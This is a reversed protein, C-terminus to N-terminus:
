KKEQKCALCPFVWFLRVMDDKECEMIDVKPRKRSECDLEFLGDVSSSWTAEKLFISSSIRSLADDSDREWPRSVFILLLIADVEEVEYREADAAAAAAAVAASLARRLRLM